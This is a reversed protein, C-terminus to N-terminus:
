AAILAYEVAIRSLGLSGDYTEVILIMLLKVVVINNSKTYQKETYITRLGLPTGVSLWCSTEIRLHSYLPLVHQTDRM